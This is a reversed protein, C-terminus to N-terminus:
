ESQTISLDKIWPELRKGYAVTVQYQLKQRKQYAHRKMYPELVKRIAYPVTISGISLKRITGTLHMPDKYRKGYAMIRIQAAAIIYKHRDPYQQRLISEDIGADVAFLRSFRNEENNLADQAQKLRISHQKDNPHEAALQQQRTLEAHAHKLRAAYTSGMYELVIYAERPLMKQYKAAAHPANVPISTDFGLAHLKTENLWAPHGWYYPADSNKDIVRWQLRLAIGSNESEFGYYHPLRLERQTLTVEANPVGSRNYYIRLLAVANGLVIIALGTVLATVKNWRMM